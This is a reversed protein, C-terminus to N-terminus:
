PDIPESYFAKLVGAFGQSTQMGSGVLGGDVGVCRFFPGATKANLSGGFILSTADGFGSGFMQDLAERIERHASVIDNPAVKGAFGSTSIAWTPEYAVIFRRPHPEVKSMKFAAPLSRLQAAVVKATAHDQRQARTEGVCLIPTIAAAFLASMRRQVIDESEQLHFRRESHGVICHEVGFLQLEAISTEGTLAYSAPWGCNQGVVALSGRCASVWSLAAASPCIGVVRDNGPRVLGRVQSTLDVSDAPDVRNKLTAFLYRIRRATL